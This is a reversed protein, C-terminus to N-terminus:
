RCSTGSRPVPRHLQFRRRANPWDLAYRDALALMNFSRGIGVPDLSTAVGTLETFILRSQKEAQAATPDKALRDLSIEQLAAAELWRSRAANLPDDVAPALFGAAARRADLWADRWGLELNYLTRARLLRARAALLPDAGPGAELQAIAADLGPIAESRALEATLDRRTARMWEQMATLRQLQPQTQRAFPLYSVVRLRVAGAVLREQPGDLEISIRAPGTFELVAIELSEGQQGNEVSVALNASGPTSRTQVSVDIGDEEVIVLLVCARSVDITRSATDLASGRQLTISQDLVTTGGSPAADGAFTNVAVLLSLCPLLRRASLATAAACMM